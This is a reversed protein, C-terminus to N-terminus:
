PTKTVEASYGSLNGSTDVAKVAFYYKTGKTLSSITASTVKGVSISNPYNRSSTGYFVRYGSLDSETNANWTVTASGGTPPPTGGTTLTITPDFYTADWSNGGGGRNIVFNIGQGATISTNVNFNFGTTNGNAITQQWIVTGSKKISVTVGGGGGSQLDKANGTIQITGSSPAVWSRIADLTNGPGGGSNWLELYTETGQWFGKSSNYTMNRGQSDHYWWGRYGQVNRFDTSAKYTSVAALSFTQSPDSALPTVAALPSVGALSSLGTLPSVGAMSLSSATPTSSPPLPTSGVLAAIDTESLAQSYVQVDDLVGKFYQVGDGRRGVVLPAPSTTRVRNIPVQGAGAGDVYLKLTANDYTMALHSWQGVTLAAGKLYFTNGEGDGISVMAVPRGTTDIALGYHGDSGDRLGVNALMSSGHANAVSSPNVWLSLTLQQPSLPGPNPIHVYDNTGNLSLGGGLRGSTWVPPNVLAGALGNGSADAVILGTGDDLKWHGVPSAVPPPAPSTAGSAKLYLVAPGSVPPTFSQEGGAAGITGTGAVTGTVPNFWEFAYAGGAINVTFPGTGPQYVLYEQGASALCYGTSSLSNLPTMDALNMRAAYSHTHGMASRGAVWGPFGTNDELLIPHHGRTFSKWVWARTFAPDKQFLAYGLHDTDLISIKAGDSAPPSNTYPDSPSDYKTAAFSAWEGPHTVLLSNSGSESGTMGVLHQKPKGEEYSKIVNILHFQWAPDGVPDGNSVEYLVNDLDNVTDIVKRVYAEQAQMVAAVQLRHTEDGNGDGNPDGNVGSVNNNSNYPHYRWVNRTPLTANANSATQANFLMLSVYIGQDRAAMVRTRLRDFYAQDFQTLSFKPLGDAASGPGTRAYPLPTAKQYWPSNGTFGPAPLLGADAQPSESVWLRIFNHHNTHLLGLYSAYNFASSDGDQLNSWTHSGTLYVARGTPDAFYRPNTPHVTLPGTAPSPEALLPSTGFVITLCLIAITTLVTRARSQM